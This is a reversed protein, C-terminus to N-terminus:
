VSKKLEQWKALANYADETSAYWNIVICEGSILVADRGIPYIGKERANFNCIRISLFILSAVILFVVAIKKM